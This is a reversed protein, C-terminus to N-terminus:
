PLGQRVDMGVVIAPEGTRCARPVPAFNLSAVRNVHPRSAAVSSRHRAERCPRGPSRVRRGAREGDPDLLLEHEEVRAVPRQGEARVLHDRAQPGLQAIAHRRLGVRGHHLDGGPHMAPDGVRDRLQRSSRQLSERASAAGRAARRADGAHVRGGHPAVRDDRRVRAVAVDVVDIRTSARRSGVRAVCTWTPIASARAGRDPEQVAQADVQREQERQRRVGREPLTPRRAERRRAGGEEVGERAGAQRAGKAAVGVPDPHDVRESREPAM